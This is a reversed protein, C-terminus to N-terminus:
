SVMQKRDKVGCHDREDKVESKGKGKVCKQAGDHRKIDETRTPM